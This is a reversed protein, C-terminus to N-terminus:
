ENRGMVLSYDDKLEGNQYRHPTLKDFDYEVMFSERQPAEGLVYLRLAKRVLLRQQEASFNYKMAYDWLDMGQQAKGRMRGYHDYITKGTRIHGNLKRQMNSHNFKENEQRSLEQCYHELGPLQSLWLARPMIQIGHRAQLSTLHKRYLSIVNAASSHLKVDKGKTDVKWNCEFNFEGHRDFRFGPKNTIVGIPTLVQNCILGDVKKCKCRLQKVHPALDPDNTRERPTRTKLDPNMPRRSHRAKKIPEDAHPKGDEEDSPTEAVDADNREECADDSSYDDDADVRRRAVNDNRKSERNTRQKKSKRQTSKTEEEDDSSYDDDADVRRRAVNHTRRYSLPLTRKKKPKTAQPKKGKKSSGGRVLARGSRLHAYLEDMDDHEHWELSDKRLVEKDVEEPGAYSLVIQFLKGPYLEYDFDKVAYKEDTCKVFRHFASLM